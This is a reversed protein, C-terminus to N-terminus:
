HEKYINGVHTIIYTLRAELYSVLDTYYLNGRASFAGINSFEVRHVSNLQGCKGYSLLQTSPNTTITEM